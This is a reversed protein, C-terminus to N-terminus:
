GGGLQQQIEALTQAAATEPVVTVGLQRGIQSTSFLGCIVQHKSKPDIEAVLVHKRDLQQLTKVIHGVQANRVNRMDLLPVEPQPVMVMAVTVSARPLRKERVIKIPVEGLIIKSTVIGIINREDDTVLLLRVGALKMKELAKDIPTDPEVTVPHVFRFDTMVDTAPSDLHVLEPLDPPHLFTTGAQLSGYSLAPYDNKM